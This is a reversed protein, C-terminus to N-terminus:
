NCRLAPDWAKRFALRWVVLYRCFDERATAAPWMKASPPSSRPSPLPALAMLNQIGLSSLPQLRKTSDRCCASNWRGASHRNCSSPRTLSFSCRSESREEAGSKLINSLRETSKRGMQLNMMQSGKGGVEDPSLLAKGSWQFVLYISSSSTRLHHKLM